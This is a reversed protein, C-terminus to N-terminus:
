IFSEELEELKAKDTIAAEWEWYDKEVAHSYPDVIEGREWVQKFHAFDLGYKKEFAVLKAKAAELRLHVLDKLALSLAVEPHAEGTLECLLRHTSKPIVTPFTTVPMFGGGEKPCYISATLMTDYVGASLLPCNKHGTDM